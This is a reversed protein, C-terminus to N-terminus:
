AAVPLALLVWIGALYGLMVAWSWRLHGMFTYQGRAIGM